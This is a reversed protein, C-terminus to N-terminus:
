LSIEFVEDHRRFKAWAFPVCYVESFGHQMLTDKMIEAGAANLSHIIVQADKYKDLTALHRAVTRGDEEDENLQNNTEDNLDHDLFIVDYDIDENSLMDIASQATYVHDVICGAANVRFASHRNEDDDLFLIRMEEDKRRIEAKTSLFETNYHDCLSLMALLKNGDEKTAAVYAPAERVGDVVRYISHVGDSSLDGMEWKSPLM